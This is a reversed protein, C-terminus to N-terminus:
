WAAEFGLPQIYRVRLKHAARVPHGIGCSLSVKNIKGFAPETQALTIFKHFLNLAEEAFGLLPFGLARRKQATLDPLPRLMGSGDCMEGRQRSSRPTFGHCSIREVQIGGQFGGADYFVKFTVGCCLSVSISDCVLEVPIAGLGNRNDNQVFKTM